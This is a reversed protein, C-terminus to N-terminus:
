MFSNLGRKFSKKIFELYVTFNIITKKKLFFPSVVYHSKINLSFHTTEVLIIYIAIKDCQETKTNRYSEYSM